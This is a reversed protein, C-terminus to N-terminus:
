QEFAPLLGCVAVANKVEEGLLGEGGVSDLLGYLQYTAPFM